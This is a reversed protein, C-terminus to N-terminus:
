WNLETTVDAGMIPGIGLGLNATTNWAYVVWIRPSSDFMDEISGGLATGPIASLMGTVFRCIMISPLSVVAGTIACFLSYLCASTIYVHKRGFSETYAPFIVGGM